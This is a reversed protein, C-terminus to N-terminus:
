PTVALRMIHLWCKECRFNMGDFEDYTQRATQHYGFATDRQTAKAGCVPILSDGDSVHYSGRNSEAITIAYQM